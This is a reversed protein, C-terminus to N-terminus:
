VTEKAKNIFHNKITGEPAFWGTSKIHKEALELAKDKVALDAKLADREATLTLLEKAQKDRVETENRIIEDHNINVWKLFENCQRCLAKGEHETNLPFKCCECLAVNIENM